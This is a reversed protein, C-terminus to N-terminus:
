NADFQIMRQIIAFQAARDLLHEVTTLSLTYDFNIISPPTRYTLRALDHSSLDVNRTRSSVQIPAEIIVGSLGSESSLSAAVMLLTNAVLQMLLIWSSVSSQYKAAAPHSIARPVDDQSLDSLFIAIAAATLIIV